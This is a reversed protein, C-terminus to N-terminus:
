EDDAVDEGESLVVDDQPNRRQAAALLREADADRGARAAIRAAFLWARYHARDDQLQAHAADLAADPDGSAELARALTRRADPDAPALRTATRASRLGGAPDGSAIRASAVRDYRHALWPTAVLAFLTVALTTAALRRAWPARRVATAGPDTEQTPVADDPRRAAGAAAAVLVVMTLTIAPLQWLWELQAHAFWAAASAVIGATVVSQDRHTHRLRLVAAVLTVFAGALAVAALVGGVIGREALVELTLNHPQRVFREAAQVRHRYYTAEYNAPGVGFVPHARVDRLAVRWMIVRAVNSAAGVVEFRNDNSTSEQIPENSSRWTDRAFDVPDGTRDLVGSVVVVAAAVAGVLAATGVVRRYWGTLSIRDSVLWWAALAAAALVAGVVIRVALEDLGSIARDDGWARYPEGLARWSVVSPAVTAILVPIARLRAPALAAFVVAAVLAALAAGRSQPLVALQLSAAAVFASAARAPVAISPASAVGVLLWFPIALFAAMGNHYGVSEILRGTRFLVDPDDARALRVLVAALVVAHAGVVAGVVVALRRSDRVLALVLVFAGAYMLTRNAEIWAAHQNSSWAIAACSWAVFALTAVIAVRLAIPAVRWAQVVQPLSVSALVVVVLALLTWSGLFYGGDFWGLAVAGAAITALLISVILSHFSLRNVPRISGRHPAPIVDVHALHICEAVFM